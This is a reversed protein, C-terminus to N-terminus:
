KLSPNLFFRQWSFNLSLISQVHHLVHVDESRMALRVDRQVFQEERSITLVDDYSM